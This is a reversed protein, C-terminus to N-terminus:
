EIIEVEDMNGTQGEVIPFGVEFMSIIYMESNKVTMSRRKQSLIAKKISFSRESVVINLPAHM